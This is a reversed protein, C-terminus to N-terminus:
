SGFSGGGGGLLFSAKGMGISTVRLRWQWARGGDNLWRMLAEQVWGDSPPSAGAREMVVLPTRLAPASGSAATMATV